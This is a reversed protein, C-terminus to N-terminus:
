AAPRRTCRVASALALLLEEPHDSRCAYEFVADPSDAFIQIVPSDWGASKVLLLAAHTEDKTLTHCLVVADRHQMDLERVLDTLATVSMVGYGASSLVAARGDLLSIMGSLSSELLSCLTRFQCEM